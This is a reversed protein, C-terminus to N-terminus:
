KRVSEKYWFEYYDLHQVLGGDQYILDIDMKLNHKGIGLNLEEYPMFVDVDKYETEDYAPKLLRFVAVQGDKSSYTRNTTRLRTGDAKEFYVALYSDVDKMNSVSFKVHIRMGLRGKEYVNYDVWANGFKASANNKKVVDTKKTTNSNRDTETVQNSNNSNNEKVSDNSKNSNSSEKEKDKETNVPNTKVPEKEKLSSIETTKTTKSKIYARYATAAGVGTFLLFLVLLSGFITLVKNLSHTKGSSPYNPTFQNQYQNYNQSYRARVATPTETPYAATQQGNPYNNGAFVPFSAGCQSCFNMEDRNYFYCNNCQKM